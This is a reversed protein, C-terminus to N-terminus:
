VGLYLRGNKGTDSIALPPRPTKQGAFHSQCFLVSDTVPRKAFGQIQERTFITKDAKLSLARSHSRKICVTRQKRKEHEVIIIAFTHERGRSRFSDPMTKGILLLSGFQVNSRAALDDTDMSDTDQIFLRDDVFHDHKGCFTKGTKRQIEVPKRVRKILEVILLVTKKHHLSGLAKRRTQWICDILLKQANRSIHGQKFNLSNGKIHHVLRHLETAAPDIGVGMM